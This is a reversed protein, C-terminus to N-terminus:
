FEHIAIDPEESKANAAASHAISLYVPKSKLKQGKSALTALSADLLGLKKLSLSEDLLDEEEDIVPAYFGDEQVVPTREFDVEDIELQHLPLSSTPPPPPPNPKGQVECCHGLLEEFPVTGFSMTELLNLQTSAASVRRNLSQLFNSLATDLPIPRRDVSAKLADCSSHLHNCFSAVGKCLSRISEEMERERKCESGKRKAGNKM